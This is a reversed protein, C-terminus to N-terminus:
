RWECYNDLLLPNCVKSEINMYTCMCYHINHKREEGLRSPFAQPEEGGEWVYWSPPPLQLLVGRGSIGESGGEEPAPM